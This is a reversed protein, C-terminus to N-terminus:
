TLDASHLHYTKGTDCIRPALPFRYPPHLTPQFSLDNKRLFNYISRAGVRNAPARDVAERSAAYSQALSVASWSDSFDLLRRGHEDIPYSAAGGTAALPFFRLNQLKSRAREDRHYFTLPSM